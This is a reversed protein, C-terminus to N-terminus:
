APDAPSTLGFSAIRSGSHVSCDRSTTRPFLKHKRARGYSRSPMETNPARPKGPRWAASTRIAWYSSRSKKRCTTSSVAVPRQPWIQRKGDHCVSRGRLCCASARYRVIGTEKGRLAQLRRGGGKGNGWASLGTMLMSQRTSSHMFYSKPRSELTRWHTTIASGFGLFFRSM